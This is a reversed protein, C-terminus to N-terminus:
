RRGDGFLTKLRDALAQGRLDRAIIRGERDLLFSAPLATVNYAAALPTKWGQLDSLHQWTAGDKAIAAKWAPGSQDVSVALIEFDSPQHRRYLAAYNRNEVRCPGCWSAWFDVLVYRGRLSALTVRTGDPASGALAPAAAGLATARFRAIREEMLRGIEAGPFKTAFERVAAALEDLRHDGDWRLSAAYLAASGKLRALTFDNLERRHANYGDVEKQTLRDIEEATASGQAAAVAARPPLVLRALSEARATEYATFLVQDRGGTVVLSQGDGGVSVNVTDGDAAVFSARQEGVVLTFLGPGSEVRLRFTRGAAPLSAVPDASRTELSERSVTVTGAALETPLTGGLDFAASLRGALALLLVTAPILRHIRRSM